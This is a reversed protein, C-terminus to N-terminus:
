FWSEVRKLLERSKKSLEDTRESLETKRKEFYKKVERYKEKGYETADNKWAKMQEKAVYWAQEWTGTSAWEKFDPTLSVEMKDKVSINILGADLYADPHTAFAFTQFYSSDLEVSNLTKVKAVKNFGKNYKSEFNRDILGQEMYKQLLIRALKLWKKGEPSLKPMLYNSFVVCYKYGYSERVIPIGKDYKPYPPKLPETNVVKSWWDNMKDVEKGIYSVNSKTQMPGFYYVPPLHSCTKHRALFNEFRWRYYKCDGYANPYKTPTKECIFLRLKPQEPEGYSVGGDKGVQILKSGSNEINDKSYIKYNGGTIKTINGKVIRTRSM